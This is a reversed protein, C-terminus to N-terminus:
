PASSAADPRGAPAVADGAARGTHGRMMRDSSPLRFASSPLVRGADAERRGGGATDTLLARLAQEVELAATALLSTLHSRILRYDGTVDLVGIIRSTVPHHIPAATGTLDGWGACYHKWAILQGGDDTAVPKGTANTAPS